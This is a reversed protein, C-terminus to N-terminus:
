SQEIQIKNLRLASDRKGKRNQSAQLRPHTTPLDHFVGSVNAELRM